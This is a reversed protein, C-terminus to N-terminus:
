RFMDRSPDMILEQATGQGADYAYGRILAAPCSDVKGMALEAASALEDAVAIWTASMLYGHPDYEGRYDRLPQLGSVGIAINIIGNRWTRGFSDSIIVPVDVGAREVLAQRLAAASADPDTPLLALIHEDPVNSTDVGANACVLGHRTEAIILGRDMRVVRVSERLVVEIHRPDKGWKEAYQQAFPSPEVQRLDVLNGEAKSVIKQTVVLIDGQQITIGSAECGTLLLTPLDDGPQIEPINTIGTITIQM